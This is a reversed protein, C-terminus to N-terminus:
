APSIILKPHSQGASIHLLPAPRSEGFRPRPVNRLYTIM